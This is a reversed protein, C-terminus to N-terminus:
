RPGAGADGGHFIVAHSTSAGTARDTVVVDLRYDGSPVPVTVGHTQISTFEKIVQDFLNEIQNSDPNKFYRGRGAAALSSLDADKVASGLGIVNVQLATHNRIGQLTQDRSTAKHGFYAFERNTGASGTGFLESNPFWSYNDGGDSLVVMVHHDRPDNAVTEALERSDNVAVEVAAFLKTFTGASPQPIREIDSELWDSGPMVELPKFLRDNFWYLKWDFLGPREFYLARGATVAKRASALMPSFAPPQQELMSYSADLVLTLFLNTRLQESDEKLIGEVDIPQGDLRLQIKMDDRELPVQQANRAIFQVVVTTTGVTPNFGVQPVDLIELHVASTNEPELTIEHSCGTALILVVVISSLASRLLNRRYM